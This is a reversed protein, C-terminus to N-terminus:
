DSLGDDDILDRIAALDIPRADEPIAFVPYRGVSGFSEQTRMGKRALESIVSGMSRHSSGAIARATELVAVDIDLTTRM